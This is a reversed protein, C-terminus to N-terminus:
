RFSQCILFENLVHQDWNGFPDPHQHNILSMANRVPPMIETRIVSTEHVDQLAHRCVDWDQPCRGSGVVAHNVIDLVLQAINADLTATEHPAGKGQLGDLQWGLSCAEGPQCLM